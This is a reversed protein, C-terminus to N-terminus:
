NGLTTEDEEFLVFRALATVLADDIPTDSRKALERLTDILHHSIIRATERTLVSLLIQVLVRAIIPNM